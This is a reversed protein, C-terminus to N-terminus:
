HIYKQPTDMMYRGPYTTLISVILHEITQAAKTSVYVVTDSWDSIYIQLFYKYQFISHPFFLRCRLPLIWIHPYANSSSKLFFSHYCFTRNYVNAKPKTYTHAHTHTHAASVYITHGPSSPISSCPRSCVSESSSRTPQPAFVLKSGAVLVSMALAHGGVFYMNCIVYNVTVM